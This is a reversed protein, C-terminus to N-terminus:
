MEIKSNQNKNKRPKASALLKKKLLIILM